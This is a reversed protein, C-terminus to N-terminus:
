LSPTGKAPRIVRWSGSVLPVPEGHQRLCEEISDALEAKTFRYGLWERRFAAAQQHLKAPLAPRVWGKFRFSAQVPPRAEVVMLGLPGFKDEPKRKVAAPATRLIAYLLQAGAPNLRVAAEVAQQARDSMAVFLPYSVGATVPRDAAPAGLDARLALPIERGFGTVGSLPATEAKTRPAAQRSGNQEAFHFTGTGDWLGKVTSITKSVCEVVVSLSRPM